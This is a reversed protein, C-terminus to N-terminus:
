LVKKVSGVITDLIDAKLKDVRAQALGKQKLTEMEALDKKSKLLFEFDKPSLEGEKLLAAWKEIDSQTKSAFDVADNLIDEKYEQGYEKIVDGLDSKLTDLFSDFDFM